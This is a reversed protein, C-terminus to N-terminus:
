GSHLAPRCRNLLGEIASVLAMPDPHMQAEIPEVAVTHATLKMMGEIPASSASTMEFSLDRESM